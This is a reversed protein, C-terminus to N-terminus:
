LSFNLSVKLIYRDRNKFDQCNYFNIFEPFGISFLMKKLYSKKINFAEM